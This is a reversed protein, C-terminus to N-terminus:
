DYGGGLLVNGIQRAEDPSLSALTHETLKGGMWHETSLNVAGTDDREVRVITRWGDPGYSITKKM